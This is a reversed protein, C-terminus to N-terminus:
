RGRSRKEFEESSYYNIEKAMYEQNWTQELKDSKVDTYFDSFGKLSKPKGNKDYDTIGEYRYHRLDKTTRVIAPISALIEKGSNLLENKQTPSIQDWFQKIKENEDGTFNSLNYVEGWKRYDPRKFYNKEQWGETGDTKISMLQEKEDTVNYATSFLEADSKKWNEFFCNRKRNANKENLIETEQVNGKICRVEKQDNLYFNYTMEGKRVNFTDSVDDGDMTSYVTIYPTAWRQGEITQLRQSFTVRAPWCAAQLEREGRYGTMSLYHFLEPKCWTQYNAALSMGYNKKKLMGTTDRKKLENVEKQVTQYMEKVSTGSELWKPIKIASGMPKPATSTESSQPKPETQKTQTSTPLPNKLFMKHGLKTELYDLFLQSGVNLHGNNIALEITKMPVYEDPEGEIRIKQGM